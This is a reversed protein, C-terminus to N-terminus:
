CKMCMYIYIWSYICVCVCIYLKTMSVDTEANYTLNRENRQVETGARASAKGSKGKGTGPVSSTVRSGSFMGIKSGNPIEWVGSPAMVTSHALRTEVAPCECRETRMRDRPGSWGERFIERRELGTWEEWELCSWEEETEQVHEGVRGVAKRLAGQVRWLAYCLDWLSSWLSRVGFDYSLYRKGRQFPPFPVLLTRM